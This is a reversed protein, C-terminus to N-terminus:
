KVLQYFRNGLRRMEGAEVLENLIRYAQGTRLGKRKAYEVSTVCNPPRVAVQKVALADIKDWLDDPPEPKVTRDAERPAPQLTGERNRV